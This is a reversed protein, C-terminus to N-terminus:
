IPAFFLTSATSLLNWTLRYMFFVLAILQSSTSQWLIPMLGSMDTLRQRSYTLCRTFYASYGQYNAESPHKNAVAAWILRYIEDVTQIPARVVGM